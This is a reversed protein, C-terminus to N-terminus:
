RQVADWMQPLCGSSKVYPRWTLSIRKYTVVYWIGDLLRYAQTKDIWFGVVEKKQLYQQRRETRNARPAFQLLRTRPHVYFGDVEPYGYKMWGYTGYSRVKGDEDEFCNLDVMQELHQFIHLGTVKRVDLGRRLESYVNDWPRGINKRLLGELPGLVDTFWKCHPGYQRRRGSSVFKPQDEYDHDDVFPFRKGWKRNKRTSGHREREVVVKHMDSRM